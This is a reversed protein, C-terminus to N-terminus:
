SFTQSVAQFGSLPRLVGSKPATSHYKRAQGCYEPPKQQIKTGEFVFNM